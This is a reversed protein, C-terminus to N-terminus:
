ATNRCHNPKGESSSRVRAVYFLNIPITPLAWPVAPMCAIPASVWKLGWVLNLVMPLALAATTTYQLLISKVCTAILPLVIETIIGDSHHSGNTNTFDIAEDSQVTKVSIVLDLYETQWDEQNAPEAM